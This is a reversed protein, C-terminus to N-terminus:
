ELEPYEGSVLRRGRDGHSARAAAAPGPGGPRATVTASGTAQLRIGSKLNEDFHQSSSIPCELVPESTYYSSQIGSIAPGFRDSDRARAARSLSPDGGSAFKPHASDQGNERAPRSIMIDAPVPGSAPKLRPLARARARRRPVRRRRAGAPSRLNLSQCSSTGNSAGAPM